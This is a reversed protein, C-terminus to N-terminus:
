AVPENAWALLLWQPDADSLLLNRNPVFVRLNDFRNGDMTVVCTVVLREHGLFSISDVETTRAKPTSKALNDLFRQRDVVARESNARRMAFAPALLREFFESDKSFERDGIEVNLAALKEWTANEKM